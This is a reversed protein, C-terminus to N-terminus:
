RVVRVTTWSITNPFVRITVSAPTPTGGPVQINLNVTGGNTADGAPVNLVLAFGRPGTGISPTLQGPTLTSDYFTTSGSSALVLALPVGISPDTAETIQVVVHGLDASPAGGQAAVAELLRETGYTDLTASGAGARVQRYSGFTTANPAIARVGILNVGADDVIPRVASLFFTGDALTLATPDPDDSARVTWGGVGLRVATSTPPLENIVSVSGAVNFTTPGVDPRTGGDTLPTTGGGGGLVNGNGGACIAGDPCPLSPPRTSSEGCGMALGALALFSTCARM